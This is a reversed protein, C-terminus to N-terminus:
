VSFYLFFAAVDAAAAAATALMDAAAWSSAAIGDSITIAFVPSCDEIVISVPLLADVGVITV